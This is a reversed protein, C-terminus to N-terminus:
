PTAGANLVDHGVLHVADSVQSPTLHSGSPITDIIQEVIPRRRPGTMLWNTHDTGTATATLDAAIDAHGAHASAAAVAELFWRSAKSREPMDDFLALLVRWAGAIDDRDPTGQGPDTAGPAWQATPEGDSFRRRDGTTRAFCCSGGRRHPSPNPGVRGARHFRLATSATRLCPSRSPSGDVRRRLINYVATTIKFWARNRQRGRYRLQRGGGITKIWGFPEEIANASGCRCATAPTAPPAGTSRQDSDATTRRAVHPTFGLQRVGAVFGKTDYGKDGAVTRRRRVQPAPRADRRRDCREAYGDAFTLEADVILANRNEMLLHGAFCLTAATNSSKRYLRADPDTTSAHTDNSRKEGHFQM